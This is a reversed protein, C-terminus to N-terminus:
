VVDPFRAVVVAPRDLMLPKVVVNKGSCGHIAKKAFTKESKGTKVNVSGV